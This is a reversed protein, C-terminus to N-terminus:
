SNGPRANNAAGSEANAQVGSGEAQAKRAREIKKDRRQTIKGEQVQREDDSMPQKVKPMDPLAQTIPTRCFRSTHGQGGCRWCTPKEGKAYGYAPKVVAEKNQPNDDPKVYPRVTPKAAGNNGSQGFKAVIEEPTGEAEEIVAALARVPGVKAAKAKNNASKGKELLVGLTDENDELQERSQIIKLSHIAEAEIECAIQIVERWPKGKVARKLRGLFSFHKTWGALFRKRVVRDRMTADDPAYARVGLRELARAFELISEASGRVRQDLDYEETERTAPFMAWADLSVLLQDLTPELPAPYDGMVHELPAKSVSILLQLAATRDDWELLRQKLLFRLRFQPWSGKGDFSLREQNCASVVGKMLSAASAVTVTGQEVVPSSAIAKVSGDRSPRPEDPDESGQNGGEGSWDDSRRGRRAREVPELRGNKHSRPPTGGDAPAQSGETEGMGDVGSPDAPQSIAREPHYRDDHEQAHQLSRFRFGCINCVPFPQGVAVPLGSLDIWAHVVSMHVWLDVITAARFGCVGCHLRGENPPSPSRELRRVRSGDGGATSTAGTRPAQSESRGQRGPAPESRTAEGGNPNQAPNTDSPVGVLPERKFHDLRPKDDKRDLGGGTAGGVPRQGHDSSESSSSSSGGPSDPAAAALRVSQRRVEELRRPQDGSRTDDEPERVVLGPGPGFGSSTAVRSGAPNGQGTVRALESVVEPTLMRPIPSARPAAAVDINRQVVVNVQQVPARFRLKLGPLAKYGQDYGLGDVTKWKIPTSSPLRGLMPIAPWKERERVPTMWREPAPVSMGLGGAWPLISHGMAEEVTGPTCDGVVPMELSRRRRGDREHDSGEGRAVEIERVLNSPQLVQGGGAQSREPIVQPERSQPNDVPSTPGHCVIAPDELSQESRHGEQVDLMTPLRRKPTRGVPREYAFGSESNVWEVRTDLPVERGNRSFNGASVESHHEAQNVDHVVAKVVVPKPVSQTKVEGAQRALDTIGRRGARAEACQQQWDVQNDVWVRARQQSGNVREYYTEKREKLAARLLGESDRRSRIHLGDDFSNQNIPRLNSIKKRGYGGEPDSLDGEEYAWGKERSQEVLANLNAQTTSGVSPIKRTEGTPRRSCPTSVCSVSPIEEELQRSERWSPFRESGLTERVGRSADGAVPIMDTQRPRPLL